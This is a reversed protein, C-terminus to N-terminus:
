HEESAIFERLPIEKLLAMDFDALLKLYSSKKNETILLNLETVQDILTDNLEKLEDISKMVANFKETLENM